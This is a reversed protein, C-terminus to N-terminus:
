SADANGGALAGAVEAAVVGGAEILPLMESDPVDDERRCGDCIFGAQLM